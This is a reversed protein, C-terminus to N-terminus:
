QYQSILDNLQDRLSILDELYVIRTIYPAFRNQIEKDEDAGISIQNEGKEDRIMFFSINKKKGDHVNLPYFNQGFSIAFKIEM